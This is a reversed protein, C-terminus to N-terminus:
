KKYEGLSNEKHFLLQLRRRLPLLLGAPFPQQCSFPPSPPPIPIPLCRQPLLVARIEARGELGAEQCSGLFSIVQLLAGFLPPLAPNRNLSASAEKEGREECAAWLLSHSVSSYVFLVGPVGPHSLLQADAKPEPHSGPTRPDLGM